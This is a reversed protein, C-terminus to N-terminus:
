GGKPSEAELEDLVAEPAVDRQLEQIEPNAAEEIELKAAIARTLTLLKTVEHESLLGIQLDLEARRDAAESARNQSILVFTSLFIAEVSAWTALIVFTKDFKPVGPIAGLNIAVWAGILVLHVYVFIMSGTFRTVVQAIRDALSANAEDRARRVKLAQINRELVTALGPPDVPGATPSRDPVAPTPQETM